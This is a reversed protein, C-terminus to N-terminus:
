VPANEDSPRPAKRRFLEPRQRGRRGGSLARSVVSAWLHSNEPHERTHCRPCYLLLNELDHDGGSALHKAHHVHADYLLHEDFTFGWIQNPECALHGCPRGCNRCQCKGEAKIYALTRRREWDPPYGTHKRYRPEIETRWNAEDNRSLNYRPFTEKEQISRWSSTARKFRRRRSAPNENSIPQEQGRIKTTASREFLWPILFMAAFILFVILLPYM